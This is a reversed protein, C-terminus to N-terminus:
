AVKNINKCYLSVVPWPHFRKQFTCMYTVPISQTLVFPDKTELDCPMKEEFSQFQFLISLNSSPWIYSFM